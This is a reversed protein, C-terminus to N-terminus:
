IAEVKREVKSRKKMLIRYGCFPCRIRKKVDEASIEKGCNLCRYMIDGKPDQTPLHVLLRARM